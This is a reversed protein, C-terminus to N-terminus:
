SSLWECALVLFRSALITDRKKTATPKSQHFVVQLNFDRIFLIAIGATQLASKKWNM